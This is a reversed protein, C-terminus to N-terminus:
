EKEVSITNEKISYKKGLFQEAIYINARTHETITSTYIKGGLIGLLTIMQDTLYKDCAAKTNVHSRISDIANYSIMNADNNDPIITEGTMIRKEGIAGAISLLISVGKEESDQYYSSISHDYNMGAIELRIYEEINELIRNAIMDKSANMRLSIKEIDMSGDLMISEYIEKDFATYKSNISIDARGGGRPYYGRRITEVNIDCYERIAYGYISDMYDTNMSHPVDTGGKARIIFKQGSLICPLLVSQAMLPISGATGIDIEYTGQRIKQPIFLLDTSGLSAGQVSSDSMKVALRISALHQHGIGPKNRNKRINIIRVPKLTTLSLAIANRLMGGGGEYLSGDITITM